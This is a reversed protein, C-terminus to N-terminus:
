QKIVQAIEEGISVIELKPFHKENPVFVTDTVFVNDIFSQQLQMPAEKSFVAHTAYAYIEKVGRKHLLAAAQIMTGGSSIMDDVIFAQKGSLDDNAAAGDFTDIVISGTKLDRNKMAALWPMDHLLSAIQKIRRLGGMDPSVLFANFNTPSIKKIVDAFLSLASVHIVPISFLDPIRITHLDCAIVRDVKLSELIRIIVELSVAEGDRFIHDQRQYGFYPMVVTVSKAGSRKLADILLFLEMYNQDVPTSTTQVVITDDEVVTENLKVRREGDPFVFIEVPSLPLGLSKAINEALPKNSSGGFIKM